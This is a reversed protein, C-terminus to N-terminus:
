RGLVHKFIRIIRSAQRQLKRKAMVLPGPQDPKEADIRKWAGDGDRWQPFWRDMDNACLQEFQNRQASEWDEWHKVPQIAVNHKEVLVRRWTLGLFAALEPLTNKLRDLRVSTWRQKEMTGLEREIVLNYKKWIWCCRQFRTLSNWQATSFDGTRDGQLRARHWEQPVKTNSTDYWGRDYMSAVAERGDRILWIFKCTPFADNLIPILLSLQLNVEGYTDRDTAMPRTDKLVRKIEEAGTGDYYCQTAEVVLEPAPHHLCVCRPLQGLTQAITKSGSRGSSLVFFLNHEERSTNAFSRFGAKQAVGVQPLSMRPTESNM